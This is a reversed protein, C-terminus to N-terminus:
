RVGKILKVYDIAGSLTPKKLSITEFHGYIIDEPYITLWRLAAVNYVGTTSLDDGRVGALSKAQIEINHTNINQIAM